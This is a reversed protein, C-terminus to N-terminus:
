CKVSLFAAVNPLFVLAVVIDRYFSRPLVVVAAVVKVAPAFEAIYLFFLATALLWTSSSFLMLSSTPRALM